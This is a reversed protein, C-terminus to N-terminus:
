RRGISKDYGRFAQNKKESFSSYADGRWARFDGM